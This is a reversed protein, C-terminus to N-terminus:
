FFHKNCIFLSVALLISEIFYKKLILILDYKYFDVVAIIFYFNEDITIITELHTKFWHTNHFKLDWDLPTWLIKFKM